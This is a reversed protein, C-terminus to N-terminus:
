YTHIHIHVHVHIHIHTYSHTHTHAISADFHTNSCRELCEQMPMAVRVCCKRTASGCLPCVSVAYVDCCGLVCFLHVPVYAAFFPHVAVDSARLFPHVAVYTPLLSGLFNYAGTSARQQMVGRVSPGCWWRNAGVAIEPQSCAPCAPPLTALRLRCAHSVTTFCIKCFRCVLCVSPV